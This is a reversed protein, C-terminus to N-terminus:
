RSQFTFGLEVPKGDPPRPFPAANRVNAAAAVEIGPTGRSRIVRVWGVTGNPLIQFRIVASGKENRYVRLARNLRMLVEGAYNTEAANGTARAQSLSERGYLATNGAEALLDLGTRQSLSLESALGPQETVDEAGDEAGFSDESPRTLPPRLSRTVASALVEEAEAAEVDGEEQVAEVTIEPAETEVTELPAEAVDAEIPEQTETPTEVDLDSTQQPAEPAGQPVDPSQGQPPPESALVEDAEIRGENQLETGTDPALVDQPNDSAVQAQTVAEPEILEEPEVEPTAEPEEPELAEEAFDEFAASDAPEPAAEEVPQKGPDFVVVLGTGHLLLSLLVALAAVLISHRIM